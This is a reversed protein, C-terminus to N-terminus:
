CVRTLIDLLNILNLQVNRKLEVPHLGQSMIAIIQWGPAFWSTRTIYIEISLITFLLDFWVHFYVLVGWFDMFSFHNTILIIFMYKEYNNEQINYQTPLGEFTTYLLPQYESWLRVNLPVTITISKSPEHNLGRVM